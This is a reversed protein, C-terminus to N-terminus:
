VAADHGRYRAYLRLLLRQWDDRRPDLRLLQTAADIAREGDGLDDSWGACRELVHSAIAELRSRELRLWDDFPKLGLRFDALFQGRYLDAARELDPLDNSKALEALNLADVSLQEACLRIQDKDIVLFDSTFQALNTRLSILCQRLNQRPHVDVPNGWLLAILRDRSVRYEDQVALFALLARGKKSRIRLQVPPKSDITAAFPGLLRLQLM